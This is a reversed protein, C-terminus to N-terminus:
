APTINFTTTEGRATYDGIKTADGKLRLGMTSLEVTIQTPRVAEYGKGNANGDQM